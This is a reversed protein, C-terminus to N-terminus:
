DAIKFMAGESLSAIYINGREDEGFSSFTFGTSALEQAAWAGAEDRQAGWIRGTYDAFVYLGTLGPYDPGRYVVGGIVSIGLSRGYDFIPPVYGPPPTCNGPPNYCRNGELIRWGYNDGGRSGAPQFDVEEFANQGVDGIYLDGTERDFSFRWPNRLGMAWIEGRHSEQGVFPNDSPILYADAATAAPPVDAAAETLRSVANTEVDIRLIKGLLDSPNQARNNPDGGSGGDGMGVYLYGDRPGFALQGGNHNRFPQEIYLVREESNPDALNPDSSTHYRAVVTNGSLDTYNVYFYGKNHYDAPFAVSLLGREGCCDVRDTIDLFPAQVIAGDRVIVIRGRQEVVFLRGSGDGAHAIHVPDNFGGLREALEITPWSMQPQGVVASPLTGTLALLLTVRLCVFSHLNNM